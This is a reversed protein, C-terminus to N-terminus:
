IDHNLFKKALPILTPIICDTKLYYARMVACLVDLRTLCKALRWDTKLTEIVSYPVATGATLKRILKWIFEAESRQLWDADLRQIFQQCRINLQEIQNCLGYLSPTLLIRDPTPLFLEELRIVAWLYCKGHVSCDLGYNIRCLLNQRETHFSHGVTFKATFHRYRAQYQLNQLDNGQLASYYRFLDFPLRVQAPKAAAVVYKDNLIGLQCPCKFYHNLSLLEFRNTSICEAEIPIEREVVPRKVGFLNSIEKVAPKILTWCNKAIEAPTCQRFVTQAHLFQEPPIRTWEYLIEDDIIPLTGDLRYQVDYHAESRKRPSNQRSV